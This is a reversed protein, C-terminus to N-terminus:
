YTEAKLWIVMSTKRDRSGSRLIERIVEREVPVDTFDRVSRRTYIGELMDM